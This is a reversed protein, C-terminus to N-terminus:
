DLSQFSRRFRSLSFTMPIIVTHPGIRPKGKKSTTSATEPDKLGSPRTADLPSKLKNPKAVTSFVTQGSPAPEEVDDSYQSSSSSSSVDERMAKPTPGGFMPIWQDRPVSLRGSISEPYLSIVKAPNINLAVFLDLARDFEGSSFQSVADLAKTLSTRRDKL